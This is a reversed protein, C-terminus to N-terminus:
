MAWPKLSSLWPYFPFALLVKTCDLVLSAQLQSFYSFQSPRQPLPCGRLSGSQLLLSCVNQPLMCQISIRTLYATYFDRTSGTSGYETEDLKSAPRQVEGHSQAMRHRSKCSKTTEPVVDSCSKPTHSDKQRGPSLSLAEDTWWDLRNHIHRTANYLSSYLAHWYASVSTHFFVFKELSKGLAWAASSSCDGAIIRCSPLAIHYVYACLM